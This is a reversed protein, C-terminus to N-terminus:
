CLSSAEEIRSDDVFFSIHTHYAIPRGQSIRPLFIWTKRSKWSIDGYDEVVVGEQLQTITVAYGGRKVLHDRM